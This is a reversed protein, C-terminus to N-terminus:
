FNRKIRIEIEGLPLKVEKHTMIPKNTKKGQHNIIYLLHLKLKWFGSCGM